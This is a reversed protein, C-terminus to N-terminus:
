QNDLPNHNEGVIRSGGKTCPKNTQWEGKGKKPHHVRQYVLRKRVPYDGDKIPLDVDFSHWTWYNNPLNGSPLHNKELVRFPFLATWWYQSRNPSQKPYTWQIPCYPVHIYYGIIWKVNPHKKLSCISYTSTHIYVFKMPVSWNKDKTAISQIYLLDSLVIINYTLIWSQGHKKRHIHRNNPPKQKSEKM